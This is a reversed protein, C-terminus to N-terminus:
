PGLQPGLAKEESQGTSHTFYGDLTLMTWM